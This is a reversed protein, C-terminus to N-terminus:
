ADLREPRRTRNKRSAGFRSGGSRGGFGGRSGTANYNRGSTSPKSFKAPNSARYSSRQTSLQSVRSTPTVYPRGYMPAYGPMFASSLMSGILMGSAISLLPSHYGYYPGYGTTAIQATGDGTIDRQISFIKEPDEVQGNGNKDFFGTVVQTKADKDQVAVSVVEEGEYIENVRREFDQPGEALKYAENVKDWDIPVTTNETTTWRETGGRDTSCGAVTLASAAVITVLAQRFRRM